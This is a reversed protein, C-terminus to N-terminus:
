SIINFVPIESTNEYHLSTKYYSKKFNGVNYKPNFRGHFGDNFEVPDPTEAGNRSVSVSISFFNDSASSDFFESSSIFILFFYKSFDINPFINKGDTCTLISKDV